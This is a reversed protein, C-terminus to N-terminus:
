GFAATKKRSGPPRSRPETVRKSRDATGATVRASRVTSGKRTRPSEHVIATGCARRTRRGRELFVDFSAIEHIEVFILGLRQEGLVADRDRFPADRRALFFSTLRGLREAAVQPDDLGLDMGAAAALRATHLECSRDVLHRQVRLRHEPRPEDRMLAPRLAQRDIADIDFRARIDRALE